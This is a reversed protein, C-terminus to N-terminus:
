LFLPIPNLDGYATPAALRGLRVPVDYLRGPAFRAWFHRMGPVIVKVVPMGIDPRTQDLVFVELGERAALAVIHEIDERLDHRPTYGYGDRGRADQGTAPCLYPQNDITATDWWQRIHRDVPEDGGPGAGVPGAGVAAPLLQGLETLARRLAVHPDFHAGFGLMIDQAPKDVRRSIAVMVPIDLDSTLDLVWFERGIARYHAALDDIWPDDFSATDVAPHRTRNYWWLAVADREVLELFGQVTADELSSGAANGNSTARLSGHAARNFYLLDTPLLRHRGHTLSWVPTWDLVEDEDFPRPVHQFHMNDANWRDRDIFQRRHFLQCGDPHLAREGLARFSDRVTPEDGLRSASYREVAECLAGVQAEMATRGKGGSQQRLGTRMAGLTDEALALNPGSVYSHLFEPCRPDRVIPHTVGTVPDALHRYRDWVQETTLSRHGNGAVSSKPRSEIVVPRDVQAAVTAPDGCAPCQPRREVPHRASELGFTDFTWVTNTRETGAAVLWKVAEMAAFNLGVARTVPLHTDPALAGAPDALVSRLWAGGKHHGRLRVALCEWCPGDYPRLVPGVWVTASTPRALMWPNGAALQRANIHELEPDLYDSCLVLTLDAAPEPGSHVSVGMTSLAEATPGPDIGGLGILRVASRALQIGARDADVGALDWYAQQAPDTAPASPDHRAVLNARALRGLLHGLEPASIVSATLRHMEALGYTGDLLPALLEIHDGTLAVTGRASTLYVAQGPVTAVRLHRRFGIVTPSGDVEARNM